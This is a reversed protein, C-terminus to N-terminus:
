AQVEECPLTLTVTFCNGEAGACLHARDGYSAALRSRVNALGVGTGPRRDDADFPNDVRVRVDHGNRAIAISVDGGNVLTSIGHRVANEALPQLLLPPVRVAEVGPQLTVTIGLRDGFRVREIDLYRRVLAVEDALPIRSQSGARLSDRFFEALELAMRRAAGPDVGTLASISHLCNFLFHPNVQARLARLEAERAAVQAELVRRAAALGEDAENLAYHVASLLLCVLTAAAFADPALSGFLAAPQPATEAMVQTWLRGAGVWVGAAALSVIAATVLVRGRGARIPVFRTVHWTALAPMALVEGWLVLVWAQDLPGGTRWFPLTGIAAGTPVWLLIFTRLRSVDSFIPHM